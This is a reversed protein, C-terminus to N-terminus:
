PFYGYQLTDIIFPLGLVCYLLDCLSLHLILLAWSTNIDPVRDPYRELEKSKIARLTKKKFQGSAFTLFPLCHSFTQQPELPPSQQLTSLSSWRKIRM